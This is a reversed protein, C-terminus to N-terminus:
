ARRAITTSIYFGDRLALTVPTREAIEGLRALQAETVDGEAEISRRISFREGQKGLTLTVGVRGLPLEKREAYMRLTIATCAALGALVLDFPGPGTGGGGLAPPEDAVLAHSGADLSVRYRQTGIEAKVTTHAM